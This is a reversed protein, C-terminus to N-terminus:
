EADRGPNTRQESRGERGTAEPLPPNGPEPRELPPDEPVEVEITVIDSSGRVDFEQALGTQHLRGLETDKTPRDEDIPTVKEVDWNCRDAVHVKYELRLRPRGGRTAPPLVTATATAHRSFSGLGYYWNTGEATFINWNTKVAFQRNADPNESARRQAESVLSRVDDMVSKGFGPEDRLIAEPSVLLTEGSGYLYHRLHRAADTQGRVAAVDAAVKWKIETLRDGLTAGDVDFPGSGPDPSPAPRPLPCVM